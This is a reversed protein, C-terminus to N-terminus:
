ASQYRLGQVHNGDRRTGARVSFWGRANAGPLSRFESDHADAFDRTYRGASPEWFLIKDPAGTKPISEIEVAMGALSRTVGAAVSGNSSAIPLVAVIPRVSPFVTQKLALGRTERCCAMM